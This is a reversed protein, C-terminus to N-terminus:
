QGVKPRGSVLNLPGVSKTGGHSTRQHQYKFVPTVANGCQTYRLAGAKEQCHPCVLACDFRKLLRTICKALDANKEVGLNLGELQKLYDALAPLLKAVLRTFAADIGDPTCPRVGLSTLEEMASSARPPTIAEQILSLERGITPLKAGNDTKQSNM